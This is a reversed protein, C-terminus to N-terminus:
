SSARSEISATGDASLRYSVMGYETTCDLVLEDPAPRYIRTVQGCSGYVMSGIKLASSVIPTKLPVESGYLRALAKGLSSVSHDINEANLVEEGEM